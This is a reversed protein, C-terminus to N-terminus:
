QSGCGSAPGEEVKEREAKKKEELDRTNEARREDDERGWKEGAKSGPGGGKKRMM